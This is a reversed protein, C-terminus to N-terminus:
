RPGGLSSASGACAFEPFEEAATKAPIAFGLGQADRLVMTNVGIVRGKDDVLPGGSNGPNIPADTQLYKESEITQDGSLIGRTVSHRLGMPSGITYVTDGLAVDDASAAPVCPCDRGELRLLALDHKESLRVLRASHESGDVLSVAVTSSQATRANSLASTIRARADRVDKVASEALALEEQDERSHGGGLIRRKDALKAEGEQLLADLYAGQAELLKLSKEDLQVVHKNTVIDCSTSAFFGSGMGWPTEIFVTANRAREIANRPAKSKALLASVTEGSSAAAASTPAVAEIKAPAKVIVDPEQQVRLYTIFGAALLLGVILSPV